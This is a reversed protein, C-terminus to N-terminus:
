EFGDDTPYVVRVNQTGGDAIVGEITFHDSSCGTGLLAVILAAAAMMLKNISKYTQMYIKFFIM